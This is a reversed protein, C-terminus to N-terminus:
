ITVDGGYPGGCARGWGRDVGGGGSANGTARPAGGAWVPRELEGAPHASRDRDAVAQRAERRGGAPRVQQPAIGGIGVLPHKQAIIEFRGLGAGATTPTAVTELRHSCTGIVGNNRASSALTRLDSM